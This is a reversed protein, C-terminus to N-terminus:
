NNERYCFDSVLEEVDEQSIKGEAYAEDILKMAFQIDQESM